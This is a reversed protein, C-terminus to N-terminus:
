WACCDTTKYKMVYKSSRLCLKYIKQWSQAAHFHLLLIVPVLMRSVLVHSCALAELLRFRKINKISNRAPTVSAPDIDRRVCVRFYVLQAGIKEKHMHNNNKNQWLAHTHHVFSHCALRKAVIHGFFYLHPAFYFSSVIFSSHQASWYKQAHFYQSLVCDINSCHFSNSLSLFLSKSRSKRSHGANNKRREYILRNRPVVSVPDLKESRKKITYRVSFLVGTQLGM